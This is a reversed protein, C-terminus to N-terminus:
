PWERRRSHINPPAVRSTRCIVGTQQRILWQHARCGDERGAGQCHKGAEEGERRMGPVSLDLLALREGPGVAGSAMGDPPDTRARKSLRWGEPLQMCAVGDLVEALREGLADAGPM